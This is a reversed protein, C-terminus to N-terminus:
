RLLILKRTQVHDETSLRYFYVGSPQGTADWHVTHSGTGMEGSALTAVEEGLLNFIKLSAEGATQISFRITTTPNFPNPFNKELAFEQVRDGESEHVSTPLATSKYVGDGLVAAFMEGNMGEAFDMVYM